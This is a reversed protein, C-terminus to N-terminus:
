SRSAANPTVAPVRRHMTAPLLVAHGLIGVEQGRQRQPMHGQLVPNQHARHVGPQLFGAVPVPDGLKISFPGTTTHAQHDGTPHCWVALTPHERTSSPQEAFFVDFIMASDGVPHMLRAPPNGHLDQM